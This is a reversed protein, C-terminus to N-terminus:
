PTLGRKLLTTPLVTTSPPTDDGAIRRFLQDTAIRALERTDYAIVTLPRPMLHSLEFDDFGVLGADSERGWLEQVAGVTIRNNLCFFATPPDPPDLLEGVARAATRPDRSM